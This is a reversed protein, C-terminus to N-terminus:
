NKFIRQQCDFQWWIDTILYHPGVEIDV